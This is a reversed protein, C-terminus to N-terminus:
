PKAVTGVMESISEVSGDRKLIAKSTTSLGGPDSAVVYVEIPWLGVSSPDGKVSFKLRGGEFGDIWNDLAGGHAARITARYAITDQSPDSFALKASGRKGDFKLDSISGTPAENANWYLFGMEGVPRQGDVIEFIAFLDRGGYGKLPITAMAHPRGFTFRGGPSIDALVSEPKLKFGMVSQIAKDENRVVAATIARARGLLLTPLRGGESAIELASEFTGSGDDSASGADKLVIEKKDFDFLIRRATGDGSIVMLRKESGDGGVLGSFAIPSRIGDVTQRICGWGAEGRKCIGAIRKGGVSALVFVGGTPKPELPVLHVDEVHGEGAIFPVFEYTLAGNANQAVIDLGLGQVFSSSASHCLAAGVFSLPNDSFLEMSAIRDLAFSQVKSEYLFKRVVGEAIPEGSLQCPFNGARPSPMQSTIKPYRVYGTATHAIVDAATGAVALKLPVDAALLACSRFSLAGGSTVDKAWLAAIGGQVGSTGSVLLIAQDPSNPAVVASALVKSWPLIVARTERLDFLESAPENNDSIATKDTEDGSSAVPGKDCYNVVGDGNDDEVSRPDVPVCIPYMADGVCKLKGPVICTGASVPCNQSLGAVDDVIGNCDDDSGKNACTEPVPDKPVCERKQGDVCHAVTVQCAGIGCTTNGLGEDVEGNCNDDLGNCIEESAFRQEVCASSGDPLCSVSGMRCVGSMGAVDCDAGPLTKMASCGGCPNVSGSEIAAHKCGVYSLCFDETCPNGDDCSSAWGGSCTGQICIDGSTCADGDDCRYGDAQAPHECRGGTCIDNTCSNDDSSCARGESAIPDLVCEMEGPLGQKCAWKGTSCEDGGSIICPGGVEGPMAGCGGCANTVGNDVVGDCDNDKGDCIEPQPNVVEASCVAKGTSKDCVLKGAKLCEGKLANDCAQGLGPLDDVVGNCDDDINNECIEPSPDGPVASCALELKSDSCVFTGSRRCAGVGEYCTKGFNEFGDDVKGNCDNDIGDGCIEPSPKGPVCIGAKGNECAPVSQKCAGVGCTIEGLNDDIQGNCDNDKGDCIEKSAPGPVADCESTLGSANCRMRGKRACLGFGSTCEHGVNFGEDVLGNCNDDKGNCREVADPHVTADKDDCDGGCTTYGDGDKDFGEDVRGDCNDDEKNCVEIRDGPKITARCSAKGGSCDIVGRKCIGHMGTDCPGNCAICERKASDFIFGVACHEPSSIGPSSNQAFLGIPCVLVAAFIFALSLATLFKSTRQM